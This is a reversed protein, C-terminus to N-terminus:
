KVMMVRRTDVVDGTRMRFFYVGSAVRGGRTDTGMWVVSHEGAGLSENVLRNIVRGSIDFVALEVHGAQHVYYSITTKPNFPNPATSVIGTARAAAVVDVDRDLEREVGDEGDRLKGILHGINLEVENIETMDIVLYKEVGIELVMVPAGDIETSEEALTM